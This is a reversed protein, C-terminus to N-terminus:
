WNRGIARHMKKNRLRKDFEPNCGNFRRRIASGEYGAETDYDRLKSIHTQQPQKDSHKIPLGYIRDHQLQRYKNTATVIDFVMINIGLCSILSNGIITM